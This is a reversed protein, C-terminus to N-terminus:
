EENVELCYEVNRVCRIIFAPNPVAKNLKKRLSRVHCGVTNNVDGLADEKWLKYYIQTYALVIGKNTAPMCLIDFKKTTLTLISNWFGCLKM